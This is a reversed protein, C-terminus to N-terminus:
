EASAQIAHAASFDMYEQITEAPPGIKVIEGHHLWIVKNCVNALLEMSHSALIVIKIEDLYSNLRDEARKVFSADGTGLWEDLVLVDTPISTSLAFSVRAKMGESYRHMPLDFFEELDAFSKIDERANNIEETTAGLLRLPLEINERASLESNIGLGRDILPLVRGEAIVEGSSPHALGALVRLLSTKGAGNAGIIGLRDGTELELSIDKLAHVKLQSSDKSGFRKALSIKLSRNTVEYLHYEFNVNKLKISAM